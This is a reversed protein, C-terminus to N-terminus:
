SLAVLMAPPMEALEPPLANLQNMIVPILSLIGPLGLGVLALFTKGFHIQSTNTAPTQQTM